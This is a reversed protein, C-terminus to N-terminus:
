YRANHKHMHLHHLKKTKHFHILMVGFGLMILLGGLYHFGQPVVGLFFYNFTFAFIPGLLMVSSWIYIHDHQL